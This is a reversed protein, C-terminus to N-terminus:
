KKWFFMEFGENKAIKKAVVFLFDSLRNVFICEQKWVGSENKKQRVKLMYRELRRAVTRCIHAQCMAENGAPLIFGKLCPLEAEMQDILSEVHLVDKETIWEGPACALSAGLNFLKNQMWELDADLADMHLVQVKCRLMGMQANLEDATGYAELLGTCKSVRKGNALSTYGKDGTKTYIMM